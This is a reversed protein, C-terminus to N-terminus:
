ENCEGNSNQDDGHWILSSFKGSGNKRLWIEMGNVITPKVDPVEGGNLFMDNLWCLSNLEEIKNSLFKDINENMPYM